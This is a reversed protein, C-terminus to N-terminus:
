EMEFVTRTWWPLLVGIHFHIASVWCCILSSYPSKGNRNAKGNKVSVFELKGLFLENWQSSLEANSSMPTNSHTPHAIVSWNQLVMQYLSITACLIQYIMNRRLDFTAYEETSACVCMMWNLLQNISWFNYELAWPAFWQLLLELEIRCLYIISAKSNTSAFFSSLLFLRFFIGRNRRTYEM